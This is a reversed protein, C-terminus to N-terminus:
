LTDKCHTGGCDCDILCNEHSFVECVHVDKIEGVKMRLKHLEQELKTVKNVVVETNYALIFCEISTIVAILWLFIIQLRM